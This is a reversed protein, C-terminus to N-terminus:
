APGRGRSQGQVWHSVEGSGRPLAGFHFNRADGILHRQKVGENMALGQVRAEVVLFMPRDHPAYVIEIYQVTQAHIM